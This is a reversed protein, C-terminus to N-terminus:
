ITMREASKVRLSKAHLRAEAKAIGKAKAEEENNAPVHVLYSMGGEGKLIVWWEPTM